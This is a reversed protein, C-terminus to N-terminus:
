AKATHTHIHTLRAHCSFIVNPIGSIEIYIFVGFTKQLPRLNDSNGTFHVAPLRKDLHINSESIDHGFLWTPPM